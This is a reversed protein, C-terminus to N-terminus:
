GVGLMWGEVDATDSEAPTLSPAFSGLLSGDLDAHRLRAALSYADHQTAPSDPCKAAIWPFPDPNAVHKQRRLRVSTGFDEM